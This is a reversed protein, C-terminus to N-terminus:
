NEKGDNEISELCTGLRQLGVNLAQEEVAFSIRYWGLEETGFSSGQSIVVGARIFHQFLTAEQDHNVDVPSSAPDLASNGRLYRRLDVWIFVGAHVNSYYPVNHQDLFSRLITSHKALVARNELKFDALFQDDELMDAWLDQVAYPVWGFVSISSVAAILGEHRSHLVGLRFGTAGFDKSMGYMVHVLHSDICDELGAGLVSVFPTVNTARSNHYVSLAFIEDSILHLNNRACFRAIERITEAPYCRGLPNHPNSILVGRVTVGERTARLFSRELAKRNMDADFVDDLGTYGELGEFRAPVLVGGARLSSMHKFGTYYPAPTIIGEGDNCIAWTLVDTVAAGGPLILLEKQSVPKDPDFEATFFPILAKRLRPSARPGIGYTLHDTTNIAPTKNARASIRNHLLTNEAVGLFVLGNPNDPAWLNANLKELADWPSDQVSNQAARQSLGFNIRKHSVPSSM